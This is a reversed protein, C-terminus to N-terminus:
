REERQICYGRLAVLHRHHLRALLEIERCFEDEAQESVKNMRKVAAITGDSFQAKYVTGFGGQGIITSFNSTAKRTEKYTFERFIFPPGSLIKWCMFSVSLSPSPVMLRVMLLVKWNSRKKMGEPFRRASHCPARAGKYGEGGDDLERSKKRILYVLVVLLLFSIVTIGVGVSTIATLQHSHNKDRPSISLSMQSPSAAILPSPSANPSLPLPSSPTESVLM